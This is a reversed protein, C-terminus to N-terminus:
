GESVYAHADLDEIARALVDAPWGLADLERVIRDRTGGNPLVLAADCLRGAERFDGDRACRAARLLAWEAGRNQDWETRVLYGGESDASVMLVEGCECRIIQGDHYLRSPDDSVADGCGPCTIDIM